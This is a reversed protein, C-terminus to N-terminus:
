QFLKLILQTNSNAISLAQIGLQQQVQLASLRTSAQNMDADVLSSVGNTLSDSLSTIFTKQNSVNTTDAGLQSSATTIKSYAAEVDKLMNAIDGATASYVPTGGPTAPPTYVTMNIISM